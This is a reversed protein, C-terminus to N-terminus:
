SRQLKMAVPFFMRKTIVDNQKPWFLFETLWTWYLWVMEMSSSVLFQTNDTKWDCSFVLPRDKKKWYAFFQTRALRTPIREMKCSALLMKFKRHNELQKLGLAQIYRHFYTLPCRIHNETSKFSYYFGSRDPQIGGKAPSVKHWSCLQWRAM